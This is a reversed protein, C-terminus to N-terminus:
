MIRYISTQFSMLSVGIYQLVATIIKQQLHIKNVYPLILQLFVHPAWTVIM